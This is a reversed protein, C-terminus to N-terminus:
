HHELKCESNTILFMKSHKTSRPLGLCYTLGLNWKKDCFPQEAFSSFTPQGPTGCSHASAVPWDKSTPSHCDVTLHSIAFFRCDKQNGEKTKGEKFDSDAKSDKFSDVCGCLVRVFIECLDFFSVLLISLLIMQDLNADPLMTGAEGSHRDDRRHVKRWTFFNPSSAYCTPKLEYARLGSNALICM